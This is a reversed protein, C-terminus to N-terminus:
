GFLGKLGNMAGSLGGVSDLLSGGQSSKDVIGPVAASLGKIADNKDLGLTSAFQSIKSSGFLGAIQDGSIPSNHGDGLWSAAISMLGGSDLNSVISSLDLSGKKDSLLGTLAGIIKKLDLGSGSGGLNDKFLKAGIELISNTDM